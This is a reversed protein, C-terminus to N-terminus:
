GTPDEEVPDEKMPLSEALWWGLRGLLRFYLLAMALCLPGALVIELTSISPSTVGFYVVAVLPATELYFLLWHGPRRFLSALLRASFFGVPSGIELMSLLVIPFGLFFGIAMAESTRDLPMGVLWGMVLSVGIAIALYFAGGFWEVFEASPSNYLKDNGESSDTLISCCLAAIAAFWLPSIICAGALCCIAAFFYSADMCHASFAALGAVIVTFFSLTLWWTPIPARFLMRLVGQVLPVRPLKPKEGYEQQLQERYTLREEEQRAAMVGPAPRPGPVSSEDLQYETGEPALVSPKPKEVPPPPVVTKAGCDPCTLKTGIQKERAHMLTDCVRCYVPYYKPQRAALESSLPAEDVGWLGYQQGHMARPPKKPRIKPPPPVVTLAGCDPCKARKGVDATRASLRTDCVRCHFGVSAPVPEPELQAPYSFDEEPEEVPVILTKGCRGCRCKGGPRIDGLPLIAGCGDCTLLRTPSLPMSM